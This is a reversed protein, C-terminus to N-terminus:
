PCHLTLCFGAQALRCPLSFCPPGPGPSCAGPTQPGSSPSLQIRYGCLLSSDPQVGDGSDLFCATYHTLYPHPRDLVGSNDLRSSSLPHPPPVARPAALYAGPLPCHLSPCMEMAPPAHLVLFVPPFIRRSFPFPPSGGSPAPPVGGSCLCSSSAPTGLRPCWVGQQSSLARQVPGPLCLPCAASHGVCLVLLAWACWTRCAEWLLPAGPLPTAAWSERPVASATHPVRPVSLSLLLASCPLGGTRAPSAPTPDLHPCEGAGVMSQSCVTLGAPKATVCCPHALVISMHTAGLLPNCHCPIPLGPTIKAPLYSGKSINFFPRGAFPSCCWARDTRPAKVVPLDGVGRVQTEVKYFPARPEARPPDEESHPLHQPERQPHSVLPWNVLQPSALTPTPISKTHFHTHVQM